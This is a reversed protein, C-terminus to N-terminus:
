TIYTSNLAIKIFIYVPIQVLFQLMIICFDLFLAFNNNETMLDHRVRQSEMFELM